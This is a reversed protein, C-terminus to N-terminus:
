DRAWCLTGGRRIGIVHDAAVHVKRRTLADVEHRRMRGGATAGWSAARTGGCWPRKRTARVVVPATASGRGRGPIQGKPQRKLSMPPLRRPRRDIVEGYALGAATALILGIRRAM